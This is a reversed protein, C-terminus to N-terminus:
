GADIGSSENRMRVVAKLRASDSASGASLLKFIVDLLAYEHRYTVEVRVTGRPKCVFRLDVDGDTLEIGLLDSSELVAQRTEASVVGQNCKERYLSAIRAGHRASNLIVQYRAFALGFEASALVIALLVPLILSMEIM